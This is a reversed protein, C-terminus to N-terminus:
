VAPVPEELVPSEYLKPNGFELKLVSPPTNDEENVGDYPALNKFLVFAAIVENVTVYM